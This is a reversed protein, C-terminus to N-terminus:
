LSDLGLGGGWGVGCRRELRMFRHRGWTRAPCGRELVEQLSSTLLEERCGRSLRFETKRCVGSGM